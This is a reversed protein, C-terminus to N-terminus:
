LMTAQSITGTSRARFVIDEDNGSANGSSAAELRKWIPIGDVTSADVSNRSRRSAAGKVVDVVVSVLRYGGEFRSRKVKYRYQFRTDGNNLFLFVQKGVAFYKHM